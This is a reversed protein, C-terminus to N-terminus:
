PIEEELPEYTLQFIAEKVPYREGAIGTVIWDGPTVDHGGELTEIHALVLSSPHTRLGLREEQARDRSWGLWQEADITIPKKRYRPMLPGGRPKHPRRAYVARALSTAQRWHM